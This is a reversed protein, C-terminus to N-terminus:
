GRKLLTIMRVVTHSWLTEVHPKAESKVRGRLSTVGQSLKDCSTVAQWLKHCSAAAAIIMQQNNSQTPIELAAETRIWTADDHAHQLNFMRSSIVDPDVNITNQTKNWPNEPMWLYQSTNECICWFFWALALPIVSYCGPLSIPFHQYAEKSEPKTCFTLIFDTKWKTIDTPVAPPSSHESLM